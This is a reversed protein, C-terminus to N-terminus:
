LEASWLLFAFRFLDLFVKGSDVHLFFQGFESRRRLEAGTRLKCYFFTGPRQHVLLLLHTSCRRWLQDSPVFLGLLTICRYTRHVPRYHFDAVWNFPRFCSFSWIKCRSISLYIHSHFLYYIYKLLIFVFLDNRFVWFLTFSPCGKGTTRCFM